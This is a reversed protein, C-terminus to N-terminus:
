FAPPRVDGQAMASRPGSNLHRDTGPGAPRIGPAGAPEHKGGSTRCALDSVRVAEAVARRVMPEADGIRTLMVGIGIGQKVLEWHMLHSNSLVPFHKPTLKLGLANLGEIFPENHDFGIFRARAM